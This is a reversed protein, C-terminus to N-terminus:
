AALQQKDYMVKHHEPNYTLLRVATSDHRVPRIATLDYNHGTSLHALAAHQAAWRLRLSVIVLHRSPCDTTASRRVLAASLEVSVARNWRHLAATFVTATQM